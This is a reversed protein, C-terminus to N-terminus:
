VFQNVALRFTARKQDAQGGPGYDRKLAKLVERPRWVSSPLDKRLPSAFAIMRTNAQSAPVSQTVRVEVKEYELGRLLSYMVVVVVIRQTDSDCSQLHVHLSSEIHVRLSSLSM